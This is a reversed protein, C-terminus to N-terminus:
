ILFWELKLGMHLGLNLSNTVINRVFKYLATNLRWPTGGYYMLISLLSPATALTSVEWCIHGSNSEPGTGFTPQTKQQNKGQELNTERLARQNEEM